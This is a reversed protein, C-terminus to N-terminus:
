VGGLLQNTLSTALIVGSGIAGATLVADVARMMGSITHRSIIERLSNTISLGPVLPMLACLIISSSSQGLGVLTVISALTAIIFSSLAEKIYPVTTRREITHLTSYGIMGIFFALALDVWTATFVMMPTVSVLGAGLVKYRKPFDIVQESIIEVQKALQTFTISGEQFSRSLHNIEDVKQLNFGKLQVKVFHSAMGDGSDIFVASLTVYCSIDVNASKGIYEVTQEVRPIEAGSAVLIKGVQACVKIVQQQYLEKNKNM